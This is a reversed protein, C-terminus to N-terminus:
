SEILLTHLRNQVEELRSLDILTSVRFPGGTVSLPNIEDEELHDFIDTLRELIKKRGGIVSILGMPPTFTLSDAFEQKLSQCCYEADPMHLLPILCKITNQAGYFDLPPLSFETIRRLLASWQTREVCAQVVQPFSVVAYIKEQVAGTKPESAITERFSADPRHHDSAKRAVIHVDKRRAWEIARGNIVKAGVEAMEQLIPLEITPWHYPEKVIKPDGSYVGDVDSYIECREAGLTAALAVATTDSGGRGLTTVEGKYSVGQYGAVVVVRGQELQQKVRFPRVEMIQADFHDISTIIGAQSGTLSVANCGRAHLAICLLAMSVREGTSVLMDLERRSLEVSYDAGTLAAQHALAILQDTAKGMASVVVVVQYDIRYAANVKDAVHGIKEMDSMSSGGYKQVLVKM